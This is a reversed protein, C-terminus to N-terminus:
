CGGGIALVVLDLMVAQLGDDGDTELNFHFSFSYSVRM